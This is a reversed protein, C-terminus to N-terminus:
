GHDVGVIVDCVHSINTYTMYRYTRQKNIDEDNNIVRIVDRSLVDCIDSVWYKVEEKANGPEPKYSFIDFIPTPYRDGLVKVRSM